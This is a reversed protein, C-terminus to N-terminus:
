GPKYELCGYQGGRITGPIICNKLTLVMRCKEYSAELDQQIAQHSLDVIKGEARKADYITVRYQTQLKKKFRTDCWPTNLIDTFTMTGITHMSKTAAKRTKIEVALKPIDVEGTHDIQFGQKIMETEVIRGNVGDNVTNPDEFTIKSFDVKLSKLKAKM